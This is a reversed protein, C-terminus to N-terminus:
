ETGEADSMSAIIKRAEGLHAMARALIQEAPAGRAAAERLVRELADLNKQADMLQNVDSM